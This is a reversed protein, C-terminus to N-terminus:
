NRSYERDCIRTAYEDWASPPVKQMMFPDTRALQYCNEWEPNVYWPFNHTSYYGFLFVCLAVMMLFSLRTVYFSTDYLPFRYGLKERERIFDDINKM